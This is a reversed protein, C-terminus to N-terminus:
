TIHLVLNIIILHYKKSLYLNIDLNTIIVILNKFDMM